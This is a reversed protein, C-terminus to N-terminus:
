VNKIFDSVHKSVKIEQRDEIKKKLLEIQFALSVRTSMRSKVLEELKEGGNKEKIKLLAPTLKNLNSTESILRDSISELRELVISKEITNNNNLITGELCYDLSRLKDKLDFIKDEGIM